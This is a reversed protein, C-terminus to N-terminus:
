SERALADEIVLLCSIHEFQHLDHCRGLENAMLAFNTWFLFGQHSNTLIERWGGFLVSETAPYRPANEPWIRYVTGIQKLNNVCTLRRHRAQQRAIVPRLAFLLMGVVMIVAILELRTFAKVARIPTIKM